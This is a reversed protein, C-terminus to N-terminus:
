PVYSRGLREAAGKQREYKPIKVADRYAHISAAEEFPIKLEEALKKVARPQRTMNGTKWDRYAKL